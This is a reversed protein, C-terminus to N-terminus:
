ESRALAVGIITRAGAWRLARAAAAFTSGTTVVDDVLVITRDAVRAVFGRRIAFAGRLNHRRQAASLTSQPPANRVRRLAPWVPVDIAAAARAAQVLLWTHDYGRALRRRWHLPIPVIAAAGLEAVTAALVPAWLPALDRAVHGHGTFKLRRIARALEGGFRWPVIVRALPLPSLVCRRCVLEVAGTPEACRPCAPGLETLSVACADCLPATTPGACAACRPAFMWTLVADLMAPTEAV